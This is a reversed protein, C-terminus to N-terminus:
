GSHGQCNSKKYYYATSTRSTFIQTFWDVAISNRYAPTIGTKMCANM